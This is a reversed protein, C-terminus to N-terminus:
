HPCLSYIGAYPPRSTCIGDVFWKIVILFAFCYNFVLLLMVNQFDFCTERRCAPSKDLHAGGEGLLQWGQSGLSSASKLHLNGSVWIFFFFVNHFVFTMELLRFTVFHLLVLFWFLCNRHSVVSPRKAHITTFLQNLLWWVMATPTAQLNFFYPLYRWPSFSETSFTFLRWRRTLSTGYFKEERPKQQTKNKLMVNQNRSIFKTKWFTKKKFKTVNKLFSM